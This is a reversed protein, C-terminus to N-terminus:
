ARYSVWAKPSEWVKVEILQLQHPLEKKVQNFIFKALNEATPSLEDFPPIENIYHHDFLSLTKNLLDKAEGFDFLLEQKNLQRGRFVVEVQWTHGHLKGCKGAYNRLFHAADFHHKIGLFYWGEKEGVAEDLAQNALSDAIANEKRTVKKVQYRPFSELLSLAEVYLSKLHSSKVKYVGTLQKILLESDSLVILESPQLQKAEELGLLLAQYEAVNNTAEGIYQCLEKITKGRDDQLLVGAAAPGPNGRSAGDIYVRVKTEALNIRM